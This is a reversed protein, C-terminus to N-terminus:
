IPNVIETGREVAPPRYFVVVSAVARALAPVIGLVILQRQSQSLNSMAFLYALAGVLLLGGAIRHWPYSQSAAAADLTLDFNAYADFKGDRRVVAQVQWNDPLSLYSGKISYKGGGQASLAAESPPVKGSAPTFRLLVERTNFVPQGASTLTLSFTN